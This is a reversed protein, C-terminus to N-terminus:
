GRGGPRCAGRGDGKRALRAAVLRLMRLANRQRTSDPRLDALVSACRIITAHDSNSISKM